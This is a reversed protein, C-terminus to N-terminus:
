VKISFEGQCTLFASYIPVPRDLTYLVGIRQKVAQLTQGKVSRTCNPNKCMHSPPYINCLSALNVNCQFRGSIVLLQVFERLGMDIRHQWFSRSVAKDDLVEMEWILNRVVGWLDIVDQLLMGSVAAVFIEIGDPLDLPATQTDQTSPQALLIENKFRSMYHVFSLFQKLQAPGQQRMVNLLEQMTALTYKFGNLLAKSEKSARM